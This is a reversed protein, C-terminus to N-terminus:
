FVVEVVGGARATGTLIKGSETRVRVPQGAPAAALAVAETVISFGAGQGIVKVPDGQTVAAPERLLALTLIRGPEINRTPVRGQLQALDTAVPSPERTWEIEELNVDADAIPQGAALSRVSRLGNGYVRVEVPVSISWDAGAVCRLGVFGRGWLRAGAHLFPETRACPALRLRADPQGVSIDVRTSGEIHALQSRVFQRVADEPVQALAPALATACIWSITLLVRQM